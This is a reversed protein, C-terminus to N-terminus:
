TTFPEKRVQWQTLPLGLHLPKTSTSRFNTRELFLEGLHPVGIATILGSSQFGPCCLRCAELCGRYGGFGEELQVGIYGGTYGRFVSCVYVLSGM